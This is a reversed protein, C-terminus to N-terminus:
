HVLKNRKLWTDHAYKTIQGVASTLKKDIKMESWTKTSDSNKMITNNNIHSLGTYTFHLTHQEMNEVLNEHIIINIEKTLIEELKHMLKQREATHATCTHMHHITETQEKCLPCLDANPQSQQFKATNKAVLLTGSRIKILHARHEDSTDKHKFHKRTIDPNAFKNEYFMNSYKTKNRRQKFTSQMIDYIIKPSNLIPQQDQILYLKDENAINTLKTTSQKIIKEMQNNKTAKRIMPITRRSLHKINHPLTKINRPIWTDKPKHILEIVHASKNKHLETILKKNKTIERHIPTHLISEEKAHYITLNFKTLLTRFTHAHPAYSNHTKTAPHPSCYTLLHRTTTRIIQNKHNLAHMYETIFAAEAAVEMNPFNLGGETITLYLSYPSTNKPLHHKNCITQKFLSDMERLWKTSPLTIPARYLIVPKIISNIIIRTQWLNTFTTKLIAIREKITTEIAKGQVNPNPRPSNHFGLYRLVDNAEILRITAGDVKLAKLENLLQPFNKELTMFAETKSPNIIINKEKMLTTITSLMEKMDEIKDSILIIDDAFVLINVRVGCEFTYGVESNAITDIMDDITINFFIPSLTDGQNVGKQLQFPPSLGRGTAVQLQINRYMEKILSISKNSFQKRKLAALLDSHKISGFANEADLLVFFAPRNTKISDDIINHLIRAHHHTKRGPTFGAQHPSTIPKTSTTLKFNHFVINSILKYLTPQLIIPRFNKVTLYHEKNPKAAPILTNIKINDDIQCTTIAKNLLKHLNTLADKHTKSIMEPTLGDPGPAKNKPMKNLIRLFTEYSVTTNLNLKENNTTQNHNQNTDGEEQDTPTTPPYNDPDAFILRYDKGAQEPIREAQILNGHEDKLNMLKIPNHKKGFKSWLRKNTKSKWEEKFKNKMQNIIEHQEKRIIRTVYNKQHRLHTIMDKTNTSDPPPELGHQTCFLTISKHKTDLIHTHTQNITLLHTIHSTLKNNIKTYIKIKTSWVKTPKYDKTEPFCANAAGVVAEQWETLSIAQAATQSEHEFNIYNSKNNTNWKRTKYPPSLPNHRAPHIAQLIQHDSIWRPYFVNSSTWDVSNSWIHDIRSSSRGNTWTHTALTPNTLKYVDQYPHLVNNLISDKNSQQSNNRDEESNLCLNSDGMVVVKTTATKRQDIWNLLPTLIANTDTIKTHYSTSSAPLYYSGVIWHSNDYATLSVALARGECFRAKDRIHQLFKNSILLGVGKSTNTTNSNFYSTLGSKNLTPKILSVDEPKIWTECLTFVAINSNQMYEVILGLKTRLGGRINNLAFKVQNNM